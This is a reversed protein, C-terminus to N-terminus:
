KAQRLAVWVWAQEEVQCAPVPAMGDWEDAGVDANLKSTTGPRLWIYIRIPWIPLILPHAGRNRYLFGLYDMPGLVRAGRRLGSAHDPTRSYHRARISSGFNPQAQNGGSGVLLPRGVMVALGFGGSIYQFPPHPNIEALIKFLVYIGARPIKEENWGPNVVNFGVGEILGLLGHQGTRRIVYDDIQFILLQRAQNVPLAQFAM